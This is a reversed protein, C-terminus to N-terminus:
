FRWRAAGFPDATGLAFVTEPTVEYVSWPPPGASPASYDATLTIGDERVTAPWGDARFAEAIRQVKAPDTVQVAQGEVVLDFEYTAITLVCRPDHALNKAKRTGAGANFYLASDVWLIGLPM